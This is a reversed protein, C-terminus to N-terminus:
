GPIADPMNEQPPAQVVPHAGGGDFVDQQRGPGEDPNQSHPNAEQQSFNTDSAKYRAISKSEIQTEMGNEGTVRILDTDLNVDSLIGTITERKHTELFVAKGVHPKLVRSVERGYARPGATPKQLKGAARFAEKIRQMTQKKEAQKIKRTFRRQKSM